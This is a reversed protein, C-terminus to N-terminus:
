RLIGMFMLGDRPPDMDRYHKPLTTHYRLQQRAFIALMPANEAWTIGLFLAAGVGRATEHRAEALRLGLGEGRRGPHVSVGHGYVVEDGWAALEQTPAISVSFSTSGILVGNEELVLTPHAFFWDPALPRWTPYCFRYLEVLRAEDQEPHAPRIM